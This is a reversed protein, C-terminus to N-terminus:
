MLRSFYFSILYEIHDRVVLSMDDFTYLLFTSFSNFNLFKGNKDIIKSHSPLFDSMDWFSLNQRSQFRSEGWMIDCNRDNQVGYPM